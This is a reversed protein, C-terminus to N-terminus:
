LEVSVRWRQSEREEEQPQYSIPPRGDTNWTVALHVSTEQSLSFSSMM